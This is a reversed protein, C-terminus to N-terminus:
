GWNAFIFADKEERYNASIVYNKFKGIVYTGHAKAIGYCHREVARAFHMAEKEDTFSGSILTIIPENRWNPSQSKMYVYEPGGAYEIIPLSYYYDADIEGNLNLPWMDPNSPLPKDPLIYEDTLIGGCKPCYTYMKGEENPLTVKGCKKCWKTVYVKVVEDPYFDELLTIGLKDAMTRAQNSLRSSTIIMGADCNYMRVGAYIEQVADSGVVGTYDKCQIAIRGGEPATMVIDVGMDGSGKTTTVNLFGSKRLYEAVRNEYETGKGM